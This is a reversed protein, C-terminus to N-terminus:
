QLYMECMLLRVVIANRRATSIFLVYSEYVDVLLTHPMVAGPNLVIIIMMIMMM